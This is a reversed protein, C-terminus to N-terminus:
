TLSGIVVGGEREEGRSEREDFRYRCRSGLDLELEVMDRGLLPSGPGDVWCYRGIAKGGLMDM